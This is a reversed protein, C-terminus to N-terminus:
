CPRLLVPIQLPDDLMHDYGAVRWGPHSALYDLTMSTDGFTIDGDVPAADIPNFAFGKGHAAEFRAPDLLPNGQALSRWIEVPRITAVLLGNPHIRRRIAALAARTARASLHTFVSFSYVVDFQVNPAFPLDDPIHDSQRLTGGIRYSACMEQVKPEPDCGYIRASDTFWTLLRLMRGWGFGFDLVTKGALGSGTLRAAQYDVLRMFQVAQRMLPWGAGGTWARQVDEPAMDPLIRSLFPWAPDPMALVLEAFDDLPISRLAIWVDSSGIAALREANQLAAANIQWPM